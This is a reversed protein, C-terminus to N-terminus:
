SLYFDKFIKMDVLDKLKNLLELIDSDFTYNDLDFLVNLLIFLNKNIELTTKLILGGKRLYCGRELFHSLEAKTPALGDGWVRHKRKM